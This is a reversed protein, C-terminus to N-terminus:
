KTIFKRSYDIAELEETTLDLCSKLLCNQDTGTKENHGTENYFIAPKDYNKYESVNNGDFVVIPIGNFIVPTKTTIKCKNSEEKKIVIKNSKEINGLRNTAQIEPYTTGVNCPNQDTIDETTETKTYKLFVNVGNLTTELCEEGDNCDVCEDNEIYCKDFGKARVVGVKIDSCYRKNICNVSSNPEYPYNNWPNSCSSNYELYGNDAYLPKSFLFLVMSFLFFLCFVKNNKSM